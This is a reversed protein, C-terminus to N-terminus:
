GKLHARLALPVDATPKLKLSEGDECKPSTAGCTCPNMGLYSCHDCTHTLTELLSWQASCHPDGARACTTHAGLRTANYYVEEGTHQWGEWFMNALPLHPVADRYDVVRFHTVGLTALRADFASAFHANGTRPQGYTHVRTIQWRALPHTEPPAKSAGEAPTPPGALDYAALVAMAGGLSHGNLALTSNSCGLQTLHREIQPRLGTWTDLFGSHVKCDTCDPLKKPFFDLDELTNYVNKSGRFVLMCEHPSRRAVLALTDASKNEAVLPSSLPVKQCPLGCTWNALGSGCGMAQNLWTDVVALSENYAAVHASASAGLLALLM